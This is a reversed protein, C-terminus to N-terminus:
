RRTQRFARIKQTLARLRARHAEHEEANFPRGEIGEHADRMEEFDRRLAYFRSREVSEPDARACGM